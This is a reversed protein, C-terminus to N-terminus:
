GSESAPDAEPSLELFCYISPIFILYFHKNDVGNDSVVILVIIPDTYHNLKWQVPWSEKAMAFVNWVLQKYSFISFTYIM